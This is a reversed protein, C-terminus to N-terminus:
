RKLKKISEEIPKRLNAEISDTPTVPMYRIGNLGCKWVNAEISMKEKRNSQMKFIALLLVFLDPLDDYNKTKKCSKLLEKLELLSQREFKIDDISSELRENLTQCYETRASPNAAVLKNLFKAILYGIKDKHSESILKKANISIQNIHSSIEKEDNDSVAKYIDYIIREIGSTKDIGEEFNEM